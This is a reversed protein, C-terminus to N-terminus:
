PRQDNRGFQGASVVQQSVQGLGTRLRREDIHRLDRFPQGPARTRRTRAPDAPDTPDHRDARDLRPDARDSRLREHVRARTWM